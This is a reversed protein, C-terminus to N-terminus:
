AWQCNAKQVVIEDVIDHDDFTVFAFGRKGGVSGAKWFASPKLSGYKEFSGSLNYEETDEKIGVLNEVSNFPSWAKCIGGQFRSKPGVVHWDVKHPGACM